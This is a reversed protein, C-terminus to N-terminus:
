LDDDRMWKGLADRRDAGGMSNIEDQVKRAEESAQVRRRLQNTEAKEAGGRRGLAYVGLFAAVVGVAASLARGLRSGILWVWM